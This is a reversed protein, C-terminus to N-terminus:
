DVLSGEIRRLQLLSTQLDIQARLRELQAADLNELSRITDRTSGKGEQLLEQDAALAARAAEVTEEALTVRARDRGVSRVASEVRLVLDQEAAELGLLAREEALRARSATARPSRAPLPVSLDVGVAWSPYLAGTVQGRAATGDADTGSLGVSGVLDLDPLAGNVAVRRDLQAELARLEAVLWPVNRGQALLLSVAPDPDSEPIVPLEVPVLEGAQAVDLGVLRALRLREGEVDAEAVVEAQRAVGLARRVQLVDGSGAFGEAVREETEELQARAIAVSRRALELGQISSVLAWYANATEVILDEQARRWRLQERDLGLRARTLESWAVPGAGALLPQSVTVGAWSTSSVDEKTQASDSESRSERWVLSATGGGPLGQQVGVSWGSGTGSVVDNEDVDNSPSIDRSWDLGATLVPDYSGRAILLQQGAQELDLAAQQLELNDSLALDLAQDLTLDLAWVPALLLCLGLM